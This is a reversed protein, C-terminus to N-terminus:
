SSYKFMNAQNQVKKMNQLYINSLTQQNQQKM